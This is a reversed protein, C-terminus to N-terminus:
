KIGVSILYGEGAPVKNTQSIQKGGYTMAVSTIEPPAQWISYLTMDEAPFSSSSTYTTGSGDPKTNWGVFTYGSRTPIPM